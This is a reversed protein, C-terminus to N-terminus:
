SELHFFSIFLRLHSPHHQMPWFCISSFFPLSDTKMKGSTGFAIQLYFRICVRELELLASGTPHIEMLFAKTVETPDSPLRFGLSSPSPPEPCCSDTSGGADEPCESSWVRHRYPQAGQIPPTPFGRRPTLM